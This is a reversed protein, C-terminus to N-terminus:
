SHTTKKGIDDLVIKALEIAERESDVLMLKDEKIENILERFSKECNMNEQQEWPIFQFDPFDLEGDKRKIISNLKTAYKDPFSILYLEAAKHFRGCRESIEGFFECVRKLGYSLLETNVLGGEGNIAQYSNTVYTVQSLAHGLYHGTEGGGEEFYSPSKDLFDIASKVSAYGSRLILQNDGNMERYLYDFIVKKLFGLISDYHDADKTESKNLKYIIKEIYNRKENLEKLKETTIHPIKEKNLNEVGEMSDLSNPEPIEEYTM